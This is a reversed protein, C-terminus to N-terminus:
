NIKKSAVRGQNINQMGEQSAYYKSLKKMQDENLTSAIGNM